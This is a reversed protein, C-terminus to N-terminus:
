AIVVDGSFIGRWKLYETNYVKMYIGVISKLNTRLIYLIDSIDCYKDKAKKLTPLLLIDAEATNKGIADNSLAFIMDSLNVYKDIGKTICAEKSYVLESYYRRKVEDKSRDTDFETITVYNVGQQVKEKFPLETFDLGCDECVDHLLIICMTDDDKIGLAAAYCAMSLPHSIYPVGDKRFQNSHRERAYALARISETMGAGKLYARMYTYMKDVNHPYPNNM